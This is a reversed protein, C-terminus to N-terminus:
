GCERRVLYNVAGPLGEQAAAILLAEDEAMEQKREGVHRMAPDLAGPYGGCWSAGVELLYLAAAEQHAEIAWGLASNAPEGVRRDIAAGKDILVEVVEVMGNRAAHILPTAGYPGGLAEIDVGPVENILWLAAAQQGWFIAAHM